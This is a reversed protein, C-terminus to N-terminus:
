KNFEPIEKLEWYGRKDEEIRGDEYLKCLNGALKRVKSCAGGDLGFGGLINLIFEHPDNIQRERRFLLGEDKYMYDGKRHMMENEELYFVGDRLIPINQKISKLPYGPVPNKLLRNVIPMILAEYRDIVDVAKVPTKYNKQYTNISDFTKNRLIKM